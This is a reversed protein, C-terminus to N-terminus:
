GGGGGGGYGTSDVRIVRAPTFLDVTMHIVAAMDAAM